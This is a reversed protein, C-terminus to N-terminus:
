TAEIAGSNLVLSANAYQHLHFALKIGARYRSMDDTASQGKVQDISNISDKQIQVICGLVNERSVSLASQPIIYKVIYQKEEHRQPPFHGSAFLKDVSAETLVLFGNHYPAEGVTLEEREVIVLQGTDKLLRSIVDFAEKWYIPDIEHLVNVLLVHDVQGGIKELLQKPDNLYQTEPIGCSRMVAKCSDAHEDSPDYAYYHIHPIVERYPGLSLEGLVRGKGAGFDVVVDGPHFITGLLRAQPDNGGGTEFVEPKQFCEVAFKNCAYEDPTTLLQRIAFRNEEAGILGDLIDSSNSRFIDTQGNQMYLVTTDKEAVTLYSILTLSHTCVWFQATSFKERLAKILEIQAKPHLHLEPEDLLFVMNENDRNRYCAVAIRLLYQQGPSLKAEALTRGFLRLERESDCRIDLQFLKAYKEVFEEFAHGDQFEASYGKAMDELFLLSNLATEAYDCVDLLDKAQCIVYPAFSDPLQLQADFHSYNIMQVQSANETTLPVSDQGNLPIQLCLTKDDAGNHLQQVYQKLLKLLRTKGSGNSGAVVVVQGLSIQPFPELGDQTEKLEISTIKM